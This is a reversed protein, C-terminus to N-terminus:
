TSTPPADWDRLAAELERKLLPMHEQAVRWIADWDINFYAHVLIHRMGVMKSWPLAPARSRGADATRAAAEGIVQVCNVLGRRLMADQDLDERKRGQVFAIADRAAGLMHEFRDRDGTADRRRERPM